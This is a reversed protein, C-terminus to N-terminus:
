PSRVWLIKDSNDADARARNTRAWTTGKRTGMTFWNDAKYITGDHNYGTSSYAIVGKIHPHNRRIYRRAMALAKSEINPETDDIFYMRTLELLTNNDFLRATPHNWLMAGVKKTDDIFEVKNGTLFWMRITSASSGRSKLYHRAAVWNDIDENHAISLWM